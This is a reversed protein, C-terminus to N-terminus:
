MGVKEGIYYSPHKAKPPLGSGKSIKHKRLKNVMDKLVSAGKENSGRGLATVTIPDFKYEGESLWVPMMDSTKSVVRAVNKMMNKPLKRKIHEEFQRLVDGGAKTSGDGLMSTSSADIIYSGSPISTKIKDDQGKGPGRILTGKSYSRVLGGKAYGPEDEYVHYPQPFIGYERELETREHFRPNHRHEPVRIPHWNRNFGLREREQEQEKRHARKENKERKRAHESGKYALGAQALPALPSLSKITEMINHLTSPSQDGSNMGTQGHMMSAGAGMMAPAAYSDLGSSAYGTPAAYVHSSGIQPLGNIPKPGYAGPAISPAISPAAASGIGVTGLGKALLNPAGGFFGGTMPTSGTLGSAQGIGQAGYAGLGVMAGTKLAKQWNNGSVKSGLANGVGAGMPGGLFAGAITGATRIPNKVVSHVFKVPASFVKSVKKYWKRKFELLGTTPNVSPEHRLEVLFEALNMPILALKTDGERGTHELSKLPDHKEEPTKVYPLSHKSTSEYIKKLDPSIDGHNEIEDNVHHFVERVEPIEIIPALASYERIGTDPDISPGHQLNDLGELEGDNMHVILMPQENIEKSGAMWPPVPLNNLSKKMFFEM